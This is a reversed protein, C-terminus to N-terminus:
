SNSINSYWGRKLGKSKNEWPWQFFTSGKICFFYSTLTHLRYPEGRGYIGKLPNKMMVSTKFPAVIWFLCHLRIIFWLLDIKVTLVCEFQAPPIATGHSPLCRHRPLAWCVTTLCLQIPQKNYQVVSGPHLSLLPFHLRERECSFSSCHFDCPLM